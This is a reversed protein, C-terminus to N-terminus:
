LIVLEGNDNKKFYPNYAIEWLHGDLDSLYGSYGGWFVKEPKKIVNGGCEIGQKYIEDVENESDANISMTIGRFSQSHEDSNLDADKALADHPYLALKVGKFNFFTIHDNSAQAPKTKFWNTYFATSQNLAKTGLTVINIQM